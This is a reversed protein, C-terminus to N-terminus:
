PIACSACFPLMIARPVLGAIVVTMVPPLTVPKRRDRPGIPTSANSALSLDIPMKASALPACAATIASVPAGAHGGDRRGRLVGVRDCGTVAGHEAGHHQAGVAEGGHGGAPLHHVRELGHDGRHRCNRSRRLNGPTPAVRWGYLAGSDDVSAEAPRPLFIGRSKLGLCNRFNLRHLSYVIRLGRDVSVLLIKEALMTTEDRGGRVPPRHSSCCSACSPGDGATRAPSGCSWPRAPTSAAIM